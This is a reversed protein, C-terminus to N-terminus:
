IHHYGLLLQMSGFPKSRSDLYYQVATLLPRLSYHHANDSLTINSYKSIKLFAHPILFHRIKFSLRPVSSAVYKVTTHETSSNAFVTATVDGNSHIASYYLRCACYMKLNLILTGGIYLWTKFCAQSIKDCVNPSLNLTERLFAPLYSRTCNIAAANDSRHWSSGEVHKCSWRTEECYLM